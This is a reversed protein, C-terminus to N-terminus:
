RFIVAIIVVLAITVVVAWAGMLQATLTVTGAVATSEKVTEVIQEDEKAMVQALASFM